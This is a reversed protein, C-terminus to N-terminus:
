SRDNMKECVYILGIKCSLIKCQVKGEKEM